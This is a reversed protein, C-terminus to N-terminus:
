CSLPDEPGLGIANNCAAHTIAHLFYIAMCVSIFMFKCARSRVQSLQLRIFSHAATNPSKPFPSVLAKLASIARYSKVM